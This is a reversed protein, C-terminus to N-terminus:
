PPTLASIPLPMTDDGIRSYTMYYVYDTNTGSGGGSIKTVFRESSYSQLATSKVLIADDGEGWSSAAFERSISSERMSDTVFILSDDTERMRGRMEFFQFYKISSDVPVTMHALFPAILQVGVWQARRSEDVRLYELRGRETYGIGTYTPVGEYLGARLEVKTESSVTSDCGWLLSLVYVGLCVRSAGKM